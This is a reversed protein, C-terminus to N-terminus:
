KGARYVKQVKPHQLKKPKQFNPNRSSWDLRSHGCLFAVWSSTKEEGPHHDRLSSKTRFLCFPVWWGVWPLFSHTNLAKGFGGFIGIFLKKKKKKGSCFSSNLSPPLSSRKSVHVSDSFSYYINGNERERICIM